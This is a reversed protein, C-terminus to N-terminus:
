QREAAVTQSLNPEASSSALGNLYAILIDLDFCSYSTLTLLWILLVVIEFRFEVLRLLAGVSGIITSQIM